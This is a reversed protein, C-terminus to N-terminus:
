TKRGRRPCPEDHGRSTRATTEGLAGGLDECYKFTGGPFYDGLHSRLAEPAERCDVVYDTDPEIGTLFKELMRARVVAM